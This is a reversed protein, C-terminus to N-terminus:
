EWSTQLPELHSNVVMKLDDAFGSDLTETSSHDKALRLSESLPRVHVTRLLVAPSTDDEIIAEAGARVRALLACFDRAAEAASIHIVAM